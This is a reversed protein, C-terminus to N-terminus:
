YLGVLCGIIKIMLELKFDSDTIVHQKKLLQHLNFEVEDEEKFM